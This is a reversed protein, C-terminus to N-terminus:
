RHGRLHAIGARGGRHTSLKCDGHVIVVILGELGIRVPADGVRRRSGVVRRDLDRAHHRALSGGAGARASTTAAGGACSSDAPTGRKLTRGRKPPAPRKQISCQPDRRTFFLLMCGSLTAIRLRLINVIRPDQTTATYDARPLAIALLELIMRHGAVGHTGRAFHGIFMTRIKMRGRHEKRKVTQEGFAKRM